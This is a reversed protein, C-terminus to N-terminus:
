AGAVSPPPPATTRKRRRPEPRWRPRFFVSATVTLGLASAVATRRIAADRAFLALLRAWGAPQAEGNDGLPALIVLLLLLLSALLALGFLLRPILM